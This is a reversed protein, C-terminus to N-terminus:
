LVQLFVGSCARNDLNGRVRVFSLTRVSGVSNEAVCVYTGADSTTVNEIILSSRGAEDVAAGPVPSVNCCRSQSYSVM